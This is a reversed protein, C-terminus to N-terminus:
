CGQRRNEIIWRIDEISKGINCRGNGVPYFISFCEYSKGNIIKEFKEKRCKSVSITKGLFITSVQNGFLVITKPNVIEIEKELLPLYQLYVKNPIPKADVQTCKALNTIFIKHKRIDGYVQDAFEPTWETGKKGKIEKYIQENFLGVEYFVDWINKTGVWPSRIGTWAPNSAINKGTPNMFVFCIDPSDDCGGNYISRLEPAGFKLQMADYQENLDTLRM